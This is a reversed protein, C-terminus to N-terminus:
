LKGAFEWFARRQPEDWGLALGIMRSLGHDFEYTTAGAIIIDVDFRTMGPPLGGTQEVGDIIRKLAEPIAGTRVAEM